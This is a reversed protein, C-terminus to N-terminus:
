DALLSRLKKKVMQKMQFPINQECGRKKLKQGRYAFVIIRNNKELWGVFWEIQWKKDLSGDEKQIYGRGTRGYMKWGHWTELFLIQRTYHHADSSVPLKDQTLKELFEVQEIPSIKLSNSLWARTLGNHKGKDGEGDQNGYQFKKLYEKFKERGVKMTIQQSYWLCSHQNWTTPNHPAKWSKRWAVYGSKFPWKPTITDKLIRENYGMLSIAIKFTSCPSYRQSCEGEKKVVQGGESALFCSTDAVVHGIIFLLGWFFIKM